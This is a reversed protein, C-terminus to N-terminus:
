TRKRKGLVKTKTFIHGQKQLFRKRTSIRHFPVNFKEAIKPGSLVEKKLEADIKELTETDTIFKPATGDRVKDLNNQLSTGLEIHDFNCCRRDRCLHRVINQANGSQSPLHDLEYKVVAALIHGYRSGSKFGFPVYQSRDPTKNPIWHVTGTLQPNIKLEDATLQVEKSEQKLKKALIKRDIETIQIDKAAIYLSKFRPDKTIRGHTRGTRIGAVTAQAIGYKKALQRLSLSKDNYIDMVDKDTLKKRKMKNDAFSRNMNEAHTEELIHSPNVCGGIHCIHSADCGPKLPRKLKLRLCVNAALGKEEPSISVSWRKDATKPIICADTPPHDLLHLQGWLKRRLTENWGNDDKETGDEMLHKKQVYHIPNLCKKEQCIRFVHGLTKLDQGYFSAYMIKAWSYTIRGIKKHPNNFTQFGTSNHILHNGAVWICRNQIEGVYKELSM